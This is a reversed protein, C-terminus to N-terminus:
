SAPGTRRQPAFGRELWEEALAEGAQKQRSMMRKGIIGLNVSAKRHAQAEALTWWAYALVSSRPVGSGVAYMFGLNHQAAALGQQAARRYWAVARVPDKAVGEGRSYAVGLNYQSPAHGQEAARRYWAAAEVFNQPVHTGNDYMLGLKYQAEAQGGNGLDFLRLTAEEYSGRIAPVASGLPPFTEVLSASVPNAAFAYVLVAAVLSSLRKM